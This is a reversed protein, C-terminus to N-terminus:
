IYQRVFKMVYETEDDEMNRYDNLFKIYNAYSYDDLNDIYELVKKNLIDNYDETLFRLKEGFNYKIKNLVENDTSPKNLKNEYLVKFKFLEILIDDVKNKLRQYYDNSVLKLLTSELLNLQDLINVVTKFNETKPDCELLLQMEKTIHLDSMDDEKYEDDKYEDDEKYEDTEDDHIIENFVPSVKYLKDDPKNSPGKILNDINKVEQIVHTSSDPVNNNMNPPKPITFDMYEYLVASENTLIGTVLLQESLINNSDDTGYIKLNKDNIEYRVNTYSEAIIFTDGDAYSVSVDYYKTNKKTIVYTLGGLTNFTNTNRSSM